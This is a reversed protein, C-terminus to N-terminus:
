LVLLCLLVNRWRKKTQEFSLFFFTHGPGRVRVFLFVLLFFTSFPLLLLLVIIVLSAEMKLPLGAAKECAEGNSVGKRVWGGCFAGM